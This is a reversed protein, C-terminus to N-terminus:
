DKELGNRVVVGGKMVFVVHELETIEKLPDGATAIIDAYRGAELVGVRDQWGLLEAANVTTTQIIQLPPMGADRYAELTLLTAAGRKLGPFEFWMDSGFAIKVGVKMARQLRGADKDVWGKAMKAFDATEEPTAFLSKGFLEMWAQQPRDTAVLFIGKDKMKRLNGDSIEDGHEISDVGADVAIGIAADEWAHAAVKVKSRHAEEVIAAVEVPSLLRNREHAVIKIVDAGAQLNERVARRAEDPGSITIFETDIVAAAAATTGEV